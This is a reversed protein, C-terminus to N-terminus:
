IDVKVTKCEPCIAIPIYSLNGVVASYHSESSPVDIRHGSIIMTEKRFPEYGIQPIIKSYQDCQGVADLERREEEYEYGCICKM